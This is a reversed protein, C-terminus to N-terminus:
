KRGKKRNKIKRLEDSNSFMLPTKTPPTFWGGVDAYTGSKYAEQKISKNKLGM